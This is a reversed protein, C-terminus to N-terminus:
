GDTDSLQKARRSRSTAIAGVLLFGTMTLLLALIGLAVLSFLASSPVEAVTGIYISVAAVLVVAGVVFAILAAVTLMGERRKQDALEATMITIKERGSSRNTGDAPCPSPRPRFM